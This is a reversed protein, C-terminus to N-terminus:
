WCKIIGHICYNDWGTSSNNVMKHWWKTALAVDAAKACADLVSNFLVEDVDQPQQQTFLEVLEIGRYVKNMDYRRSDSLTKMLLRSVSFKDAKRGKNKM